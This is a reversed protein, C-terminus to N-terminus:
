IWKALFRKFEQSLEGISKEIAIYEDELLERKELMDKNVYGEHAAVETAALHIYDNVRHRLQGINNRQILFQSEFHEIGQRAEFQSNKGAVELLRKEMIAIDEKYFDLGKLIESQVNGLNSVHTYSM